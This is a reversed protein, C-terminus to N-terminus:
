RRPFSEWSFDLLFCVENQLFLKMKLVICQVDYFRADVNYIARIVMVENRIIFEM